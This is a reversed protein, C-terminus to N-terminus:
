GKNIQEIANTFGTLTIPLVVNQGQMNLFNIKAQGGMKMENILGDPLRVVAVCGNVKTSSCYRFDFDYVNGEDIQMKVGPELLTELPLIIVGRAEDTGAPYGIAVQAYLKRSEREIIRQVIECQEITEESDPMKAELCRVNWPEAPASGEATQAPADTGEETEAAIAQGGSPESFPSTIWLAGLAVVLVLVVAILTQKNM